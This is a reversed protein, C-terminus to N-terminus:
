YLLSLGIMDYPRPDRDKQDRTGVSIRGELDSNLKTAAFLGVTAAQYTPDGQLGAEIGIRM